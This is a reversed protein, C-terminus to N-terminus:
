TPPVEAPVAKVRVFTEVNPEFGDPISLRRTPIPAVGCRECRDNSVVLAVRVDGDTECNRCVIM